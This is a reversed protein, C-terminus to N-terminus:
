REGIPLQELLERGNSRAVADDNFLGGAATTRHVVMQRNELPVGEICAGAPAEPVTQRRGHADGQTSRASFHNGHEAITVPCPM